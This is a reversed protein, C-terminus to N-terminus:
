EEIGYVLIPVTLIKYFVTNMENTLREFNVVNESLDKTFFKKPVICISAKIVNNGFMAQLKLLDAYVRSMNGTQFCLGIEHKMSTINIGSNKPDVRVNNPWGKNKLYGLISVRVKQTRVPRNVTCASIAKEIEGRINHPISSTAGRYNFTEFQM